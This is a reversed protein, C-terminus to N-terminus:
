SPEALARLAANAADELSMATGRAVDATFADDGLAARSKEADRLVMSQELDDRVSGLEEHIRNTAGVLVAVEHHAGRGSAFSIATDICMAVVMKAGVALSERLARQLIAAADELEGLQLKAIAVNTLALASGWRDGLEARIESSRTCLAVATAWDGAQLALDGLNNLAVAGNWRDGIREALAALEAYIARAAADDQAAAAAKGRERLADALGHEDGALVFAAYAADAHRSAAEIDGSIGGTLAGCEHMRGVLGDSLQESHELTEAVWRRAERIGGRLYFFFGLNGVIEAAIEPAHQLGFRVAARVNDYDEAIRDGWEDQDPGHRLHPDARRVLSAFAEAHRRQLM